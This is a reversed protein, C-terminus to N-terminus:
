PLLELYDCHSPRFIEFDRHDFTAIRTINLREAQAMIATDTFDFEASEYRKMIQEMRLMDEPTLAEIQFPLQTTAFVKIACAYSMRIRTMHFLETLVPALAIQLEGRVSQLFEKAM